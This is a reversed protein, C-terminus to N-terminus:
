AKNCGCAGGCKASFKVVDLWESEITAMGGVQLTIVAKRSKGLNKGNVEFINNATDIFLGEGVAQVDIRRLEKELLDKIVPNEENLYLSYLYDRDSIQKM